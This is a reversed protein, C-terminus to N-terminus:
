SYRLKPLVTGRRHEMRDEPSRMDYHLQIVERSADCRAEVIEMPVGNALHWSISGKRIPHTSRSSPCKSYHGHERFQCTESHKGHPCPGHRCPQTFRYAWSRVTNKHPRGQQSTFLPHRGHDDRLGHRHDGVYADIADVVRDPISVVRESDRNKKLPTDTDPRHRFWVYGDDPYFDSLDLARLGSLRAATSWAVELLAHNRSGPTQSRYYSLLPMASEADLTEQSVEERKDPTRVPVKKSLDQSVAEIREWYEVAKRLDKMDGKLTTVAIGQQRRHREYADLTRGDLERLDQIGEAECWRRFKRLSYDYTKLTEKSVEIERHSLYRDIGEDVDLAQLDESM